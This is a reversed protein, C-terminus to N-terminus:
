EEFCLLSAMTSVCGLAAENTWATTTTGALGVTGTFGTNYPAWDNCVSGATGGGVTGTWYRTGSALSQGRENVALPALPTSQLNLLNNFTLVTGGDAGEQAWPGTDQLRSRASVTSNSLWAKWTGSKNAAQASTTCFGDAASLSMFNGSYTTSTVFVRRRTTGNVPASPQKSQEICLLRNASSFCGLTADNTWATATTGAVGVVGTFGTNYPAWDNCSAASTGGGATGTWARAGSPVPLGREDVEIPALPTTQLNALNSFTVVTGGDALQQVWPGVNAIRTRAEAMSDSIWAKWTGGKNAGRANANCNNDATTLSGFTGSYTTSTIFIRM